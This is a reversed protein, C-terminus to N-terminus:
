LMYTAALSFTLSVVSGLCMSLWVKQVRRRAARTGARAREDLLVVEPEFTPLTVARSSHTMPVEKRITFM